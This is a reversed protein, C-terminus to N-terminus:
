NNGDIITVEAQAFPSLFVGNGSSLYLILTENMEVSMDDLIRIEVNM